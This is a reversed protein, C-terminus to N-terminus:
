EEVPARHLPASNAPLNAPVYPEPKQGRLYFYRAALGVLAVFVILALM